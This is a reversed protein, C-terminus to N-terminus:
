SEHAKHYVTQTEMWDVTNKLLGYVEDSMGFRDRNIDLSKYIDGDAHRLGAAKWDCLMELLDILTMARYGDTFHEPHHRNCAYHHDIAPRQARLVARYEDSGYTLGRLQHTIADYAEVEPPELKSQDHQEARTLLERVCVHLYNRVTEIHRMTQFRAQTM